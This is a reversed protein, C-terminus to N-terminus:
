CSGLQICPISSRMVSSNAAFCACVENDQLLNLLQAAADAKDRDGSRKVKVVQAAIGADGALM